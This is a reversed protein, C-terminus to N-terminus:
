TRGEDNQPQPPNLAALAIKRMYDREGNSGYAMGYSMEEGGELKFGSPPFEGHWRAIKRLADELRLIREAEPRAAEAERLLAYAFNKWGNVAQEMCILAASRDPENWAGKKWYDAYRETAEAPTEIKKKEAQM